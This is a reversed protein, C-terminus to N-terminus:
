GPKVSTSIKNYGVIRVVRVLSTFLPLVEEVAGAQLLRTCSICQVAVEHINTLVAGRVCFLSLFYM